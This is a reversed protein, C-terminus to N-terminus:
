QGVPKFESFGFKEPYERWPGECVRDYGCKKCEPGKLKALGQRIKDFEMRTDLEYIDTSPLFREAIYKEYGSMLCYPIAETMGRVGAKRGEDLGARVYPIVMSMRPVVSFFDALASGMAHVFAFQYQDVGLSVLLRAIEPLHRYNSKVIVTNAYIRQGLERLNRIGQVTEHFSESMTLYNHLEGIHGHLAIGFENVGAAVCERCFKKYAFMRGNSQAQIRSFGLARAYRVLELFDPRVTPEGGTFVIGACNKRARGLIRRAEGTTMEPLVERKRGQVCFRCRNNCSYGLKIDAKRGSRAPTRSGTFRSLIRDARMTSRLVKRDTHERVLNKLSVTVATRRVPGRINGLCLLKRSPNFRRDLIINSSYLGGDTDVTYCSNYLPVEGRRERNIFDADPHEDCFDRIRDAERSFADLASEKWYVYYVPLLNFRRFGARYFAYFESFLFHAKEPLVDLTLCVRGSLALRGLIKKNLAKRHHSSLMIGTDHRMLFDLMARDLLIGNTSLLFKVKQKLGAARSEAYRIVSKLLGPELLPEGGFFKVTKEGAGPADPSLLFDVAKRAAAIDMSANKKGVPCFSCKLNCRRTLVLALHNEQFFKNNM